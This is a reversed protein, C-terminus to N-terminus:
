KTAPVTEAPASTAAAPEAVPTEVPAQAKTLTLVDEAIVEGAGNIVSVKWDGLLQPALTKNSWVRWRPGKVSFEVEAVVEGNYEWRHKAMQGSMDRLETFYSITNADNRLSKINDVPERDNIATTFISRVVSGRSFGSQIMTQSADQTTTATPAPMKEASAAETMAPKSTQEKATDTAAKDAAIAPAALLVAFFVAFLRKM